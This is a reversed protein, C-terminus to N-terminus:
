VWGLLRLRGGRHVRDVGRIFSSNHHHHIIKKRVKRLLQDKDVSAEDFDPVEELDGARRKFTAELGVLFLPPYM